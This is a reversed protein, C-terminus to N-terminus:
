IKTGKINKRISSIPSLHNKIGSFVVSFIQYDGFILYVVILTIIVLFFVHDATTIEDSALWYIFSM